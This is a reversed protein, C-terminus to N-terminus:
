ARRRVRENPALRMDLAVLAAAVLIAAAGRWFIRSLRVRTM